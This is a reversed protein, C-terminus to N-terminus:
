APRIVKLRPFYRRLYGRDHAALQDANVQAHAAILFDPILHQRPGGQARYGLFVQGALWACELSSPVLGVGLKRLAQTMAALTPFAPAVEAAVIECAVLPGEQRAAILLEVWAPGDPEDKLVALLASTDVATIM